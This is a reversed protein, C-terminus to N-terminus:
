YHGDYYVKDGTNKHYPDIRFSGYEALSYVLDLRSSVNWSEMGIFHIFYGYSVLITLFLLLPITWQTKNKM